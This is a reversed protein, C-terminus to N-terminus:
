ASYRRRRNSMSRVQDDGYREIEIRKAERLFRCAGHYQCPLDSKGYLLALTERVFLTYLEDAEVKHRHFYDASDEPFFHLGVWPTRSKHSGTKM